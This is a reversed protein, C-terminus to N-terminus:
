KTGPVVPPSLKLLKSLEFVTIVPKM